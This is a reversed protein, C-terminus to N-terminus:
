VNRRADMSAELMELHHSVCLPVVQKAPWYVERLTGEFPGTEFQVDKECTYSPSGAALCFATSSDIAQNHYQIRTRMAFKRLVIAQHARVANSSRTTDQEHQWAGLTAVPTKAPSRPQICGSILFTKYV